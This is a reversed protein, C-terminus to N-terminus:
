YPCGKHNGPDGGQSSIHKARPPSSADNQQAFDPCPCTRAARLADHAM